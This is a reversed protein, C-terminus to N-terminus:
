RGRAKTILQLVEKEATIDEWNGSERLSMFNDNLIAKGMM